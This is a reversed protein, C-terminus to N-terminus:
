SLQQLDRHRWQVLRGRDRFAAVLRNVIYVTRHRGGTCGIGVALYSRNEAEFMPLWHNLFGGLQQVMEEVAEDQQLFDIIVPDEGTLPRFKPQWHPNTLCRVDFIYDADIPTGHKYGFSQFFLTPRGALNGGAFERITLRLEHPTTHTTNIRCDAQQELPALLTREVAIGDLLPTTADTLPHKRRTESYRQLLTEDTAELFVIRAPKGIKRLHALADPLSKLFQRNRSDISVAAHEAYGNAM